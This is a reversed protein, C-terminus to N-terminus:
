EAMDIMSKELVSPFLGGGGGFIFLFPALGRYGINDLHHVM